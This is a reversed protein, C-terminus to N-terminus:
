EAAKGAALPLLRDSVEDLFVALGSEQGRKKLLALEAVMWCRVQREWEGDVLTELVRKPSRRAYEKKAGLRHAEENPFFGLEQRLAALREREADTEPEFGALVWAERMPDPCGLVITQSFLQEAEERAQKLGSRRAEGQDDMDWVLLVAGVEEGSRSLERAIQFVTRAMLAGPAGPEGNFHGPLARLGLRQVHMTLGHLDFYERGEGDPVWELVTRAGEAPGELLDRLWAPGEEKLVREVLNSALKFDAPAECWVLLRAM